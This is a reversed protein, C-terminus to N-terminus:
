AKPPRDLGFIIDPYILGQAPMRFRAQCQDGTWWTHTQPLAGACCHGAMGCSSVGLCCCAGPVCDTTRHTQDATVSADTTSDTIPPSLSMPTAAFSAKMKEADATTLQGSSKPPAISRATEFSPVSAHAHGEHARANASGGFVGAILITLATIARLLSM